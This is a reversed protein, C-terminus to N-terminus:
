STRLVSALMSPDSLGGFIAAAAVERDVGDLCLRRFAMAQRMSVRKDPDNRITAAVLSALGNNRLASLAQPHPADVHIRAAFRDLLAEPLVLPLDAANTTAVVHFGRAPRVTEGTPLTLRAVDPDDLIAHLFTAADGSAQDIENLVLRAGERWARIAPGDHWEFSDGRPLYHGRLEAAPTEMTVTVSYVKDRKSAALTKGTGPPGYLVVNHDLALIREIHIWEM